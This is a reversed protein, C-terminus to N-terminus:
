RVEDVFGLSLAEDASLWWSKRQWKAVFEERTVRSRSVFIDIIREHLKEAWSVTDQVAGMSGEAVFTSEHIMMWAERTMVRRDGAQLLIAAMSAALGLGVTTVKLASKRRLQSIYDFIALGDVLSGGPSTILLEVESVGDMRAFRELGRMTHWATQIQIEGYLHFTSNMSNLLEGELVKARSLKAEAEARDAQAGILRVSAELRRRKIAAIEIGHDTM